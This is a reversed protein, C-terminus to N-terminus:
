ADLCHRNSRTMILAHDGRQNQSEHSPGTQGLRRWFLEPLQTSWRPSTSEKPGPFIVRLTTLWRGADQVDQRRVGVRDHLIPLRYRGVESMVFYGGEDALAPHALHPLGRRNVHANGSSVGGHSLLSCALVLHVSAPSRSRTEYLEGLPPAATLRQSRTDIGRNCQPLQPFRNLIPSGIQRIPSACSRRQM